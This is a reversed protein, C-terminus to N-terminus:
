DEFIYVNFMEFVEGKVNIPFQKQWMLNSTMDFHFKLKTSLLITRVPNKWLNENEGPQTRDLGLKKSSLNNLRNKFTQESIKNEEMMIRNCIWPILKIMRLKDLHRFPPILPLEPCPCTPSTSNRRLTREHRCRPRTRLGRKWRLTTPWPLKAIFDDFTVSVLFNILIIINRLQRYKSYCKVSVKFM